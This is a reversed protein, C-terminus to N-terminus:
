GVPKEVSTSSTSNYRVPTDKTKFRIREVRHITIENRLLELAPQYRSAQLTLSLYDDSSGGEEQEGAWIEPIFYSGEEDSEWLNVHAVAHKEHANLVGSAKNFLIVNHGVSGDEHQEVQISPFYIGDVNLTPHTSLFDAVVQTILYGQDVMEPMVPLLLQSQLEALFACRQAQELRKPDFYGLDRNPRIKSLAALNLLRLARTVKFTATVVQSGVPARVEAIATHADTAGYFVSVGRANMRGASGAGVPPPGLYREPHSLAESVASDNSFVRARLFRDFPFGPGITIIASTSHGINLQEIGGFVQELVRAATPNVFRAEDSLSREMETWASSIESTPSVGETFYPDDDSWHSWAELLAEGIATMLDDSCGLMRTLVDYLHEGVPQRNFHVVSIPQHVYQFSALLATECTEVLEDFAVVNAESRCFSCEDEIEFDLTDQLYEETICSRCVVNTM